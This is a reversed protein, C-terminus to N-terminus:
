KDVRFWDVDAHGRVGSKLPNVCFLGVKAGIWKGQRATFIEPLTAYEKGDVSYRFICIGKNKMQVQLYIQNNEFDIKKVIKEPNQKEADICVSQELAYGTGTKVLSLTAYDRGMVVLGAKEGVIESKFELKTTASFEEAPIKQLLLNSVSWFNVFDPPTFEATMRLFGLRSPQAWFHSPNCPWQWQIGIKEDEFEDSEKVTQLPYTKGVNPKEHTLVPEGCGDHDSDFGIIPWDYIWKIPQLHVVRGYVGKDQFHFFWSEGNPSEVWAGQHPGNIDTKGQALVIKNEYPGYINKSRLIVQWGTEVSGAPAFIYYYGNRKYFKPGEIINDGHVLGDYVLVDAGIVKNASANLENVTIVSNFGARSKAWAFALYVKGDDDWLPTPDILGKGDKVLVSSDWEGLPDKTKTMYIGSDPDPWFIFFEGKHYRICPAYVGKGQQPKSFFDEPILRKLAYNVLKWNVMDKSHLIPIGPVCNFSSSIMYYDNGVRIVDPDSYDANIIPNKYTGDGQDSVWVKSVYPASTQAEIYLTFFLCFTALLISRCLPKYHCMPNFEKSTLQRITNLDRSSFQNHQIM